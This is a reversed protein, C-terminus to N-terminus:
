LVAVVVVFALVACFVLTCEAIAIGTWSGYCHEKWNSRGYKVIFAPLEEYSWSVFPSRLTLTNEKTAFFKFRRKTLPWLWPMGWGTGVTDHLFHLTTAVLAIFPELGGFVIGWTSILLAWLLPKHLGERHDYPNGSYAAVHGTKWFHKDLAWDIDPIYAFVIGVLVYTVTPEVSFLSCIFLAALVGLGADAFVLGLKQM